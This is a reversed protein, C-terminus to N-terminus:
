RWRRKLIVGGVRREGSKLRNIDIAPNVAVLRGWFKNAGLRGHGNHDTWEKYLSYFESRSETHEHEGTVEVCDDLFSRLPDSAERFDATADIVSQPTSYRGQKMARRLGDVARVLVGELQAHMKPEITRDEQGPLLKVKTFPVVVWRAHFGDTHDLTGPAENASFLMTAISRFKFPQGNKHEAMITDNGTAMKFLDTRKISRADLDGSINAVKGFLQAGMFRNEGLAQLTVNSYHESGILEEVLRLFTGKGNRGPGLLLVAKHFPQGAYIAAGIIEWALDIADDPCVKALWEDVFPCTAEKNWKTSLQYTSPVAPTHPHLELTEWDLLGNATNIFRSPQEPTIHPKRAAFDAVLGEAHSRRHHEGLLRRVRRRVEDAGGALWVGNEYYWVSNGPGACIQGFRRVDERLTAARLGDKPDIYRNSNVVEVKPRQGDDDGDNFIEGDENVNAPRSKWQTLDVDTSVLATGDDNLIYRSSETSNPTGTGTFNGLRGSGTVPRFDPGLAFVASHLKLWSM